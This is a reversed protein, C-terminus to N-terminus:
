RLDPGDHAHEPEGLQAHLHPQGRHGPELDSVSASVNMATLPRLYGAGARTRWRTSSRRPSTTSPVPEEPRSTSPPLVRRLGRGDVPVRGRLQSAPLREVHLVSLFGPAAWRVRSRVRRSRFSRRRLQVPRVRVDFPCLDLLGGRLGGDREHLLESRRVGGDASWGLDSQNYSDCPAFADGVSVCRAVPGLRHRSRVGRAVLQPLLRRPLLLIQSTRSSCPAERAPRTRPPPQRQEGLLRKARTSDNARLDM